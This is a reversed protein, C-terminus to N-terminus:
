VHTVANTSPDLMLSGHQFDVRPDNGQMYVDSVPYGFSGSEKGNAAWADYIGGHIEFTGSPSTYISGHRFQQYEGAGDSTPVSESVPFGLVSTTTGLIAYHNWILGNVLHLGTTPSSFIAGHEFIAYRGEGSPDPREGALEHGLVGSAGGLDLWRQTIETTCDPGLCPASHSATRNDTASDASCATDYM